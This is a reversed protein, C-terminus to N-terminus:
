PVNNLVTKGLIIQRLSQMFVQLHKKRPCVVTFHVKEAQKLNLTHRWLSTKWIGHLITVSKFLLFVVLLKQLDTPTFWCCQGWQLHLVDGLSSKRNKKWNRWLCWIAAYKGWELIIEDERIWEQSRWAKLGYAVIVEASRCRRQRWRSKKGVKAPHASPPRFVILARSVTTEMKGICTQSDMLIMLMCAHSFKSGPLIAGVELNEM